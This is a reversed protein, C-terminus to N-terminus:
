CRQKLTRVSDTMSFDLFGFGFDFGMFEMSMEDRGARESKM